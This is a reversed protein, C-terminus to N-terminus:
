IADFVTENFMDLSEIITDAIKIYPHERNEPAPVALCKMKAAKASLVGNPSDELALCNHVSVGLQAATTIYVGPHPKGHTEHEASYLYKFYNRIELKDVVANIIESSSSSAIAMPLNKATFFKITNLVGPLLTGERNILEIVNDVIRAELDKQSAGTWPKEHFWYAVVEDIRKGMTHRLDNDTLNLGVTSFAKRQSGRWFPESDIILGDMDFIVAKIM